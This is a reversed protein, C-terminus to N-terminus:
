IMFVLIDEKTITIICIINIKQYLYVGETPRHIDIKEYQLSRWLREIFTNDTATGKGDM